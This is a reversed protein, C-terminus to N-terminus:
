DRTSLARVAMPCTARIIAFERIFKRLVLVEDDSLPPVNRAEPAAFMEIVNDPPQPEKKM